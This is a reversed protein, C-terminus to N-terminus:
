PSVAELTYNFGDHSARLRLGGCLDLGLFITFNGVIGGSMLFVYRDGLNPRYGGVCAVNLTGALTATGVVALVDYDTDPRLGGLEIELVGTPTQTYNGLVALTGFSAEGGVSVRAANRLDGQVVGTGTLLGSQIDVLRAVLTGFALYTTGTGTQTYNGTATLTALAALVFGTNGFAGNVTLNGLVGLFVGDNHFNGPVELFADPLLVLIGSAQNIALNLGGVAWNPGDLLLTAALSRIDANTFRLTGAVHYTGGTLTNFEYNTFRGGDISFLRGASINITGNNTFVSQWFIVNGGTANIIGTNVFAAAQSVTLTGSTVDIVGSNIHRGNVKNIRLTGAATLTGRNDLSATLYRPGPTASAISGTNILAGGGTVNLTANNVSGALVITGDNTFGDPHTVTLTAPTFYAAQVQIESSGSTRLTGAITSPESALVLLGGRNELAVDVASGALEIGYPLSASNTLTGTGRLVAGNLRLVGNLTVTFANDITSVARGLTLRGGTVRFEEATTLSDISTSGSVATYEVSQTCQVDPIIVDDGAGPPRRLDWNNPDHWFRCDGAGTWTIRAPALRNELLDLELRCTAKWRQRRTKPRRRHRAASSVQHVLKRLSSYWM